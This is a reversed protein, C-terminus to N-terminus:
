GKRIFKVVRRPRWEGPMVFYLDKHSDAWVGHCSRHIESGWQALREGELTLVSFLGGNHQTLRQAVNKTCGIYYRGSQQSQLIYIHFM